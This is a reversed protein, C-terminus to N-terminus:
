PFINIIANIFTMIRISHCLIESRNSKNIAWFQIKLSFLGDFANMTLLGSVETSIQTLIMSHFIWIEGSLHNIEGSTESLWQLMSDFRSKLSSATQFLFEWRWLHQHCNKTILSLIEINTDDKPQQHGVTVSFSLPYQYFFPWFRWWYRLITAVM